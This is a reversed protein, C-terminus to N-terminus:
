DKNTLRETIVAKRNNNLLYAVHIIEILKIKNVDINKYIQRINEEKKEKEKHITFATKKTVM